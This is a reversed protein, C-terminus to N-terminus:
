TLQPQPFLYGMAEDNANVGRAVVLAHALLKPIGEQKGFSILARWSKCLALWAPRVGECSGHYVVGSESEVGLVCGTRTLYTEMVKGGPLGMEWLCMGSLLSFGYIRSESRVALRQVEHALHMSQLDAIHEPFTIRVTEEWTATNLVLLEVEGTTKRSFIVTLPGSTTHLASHEEGSIPFIRQRINSETEFIALRLSSVTRLRQLEPRLTPHTNHQRSFVTALRDSADPATELAIGSTSPLYNGIPSQQPSQAEPTVATTPTHPKPTAPAPPPAAREAPSPLPRPAAKSKKPAAKRNKNLTTSPKKSPDKEDDDDDSLSLTNGAKIRRDRYDPHMAANRVRKPTPLGPATKAGFDLHFVGRSGTIYMNGAIREPQAAGPEPKIFDHADYSIDHLVGTCLTACLAVRMKDLDLIYLRAPLVSMLILRSATFLAREVRSCLVFSRLTTFSEITPPTSLDGSSRPKWKVETLSCGTPMNHFLLTADANFRMSRSGIEHVPTVRDSFSEGDEDRREKRIPLPLHGVRQITKLPGQKTGGTSGWYLHIGGVSQAAILLFSGGLEGKSAQTHGLGMAVCVPERTFELTRFHASPFVAQNEQYLVAPYDAVDWNVGTILPLTIDRHKFHETYPATLSCAVVTDRDLTYLLSSGSPSLEYYPKVDNKLGSSQQSFGASGWLRLSGNECQIAAVRAAGSVRSGSVCGVMEEADFGEM